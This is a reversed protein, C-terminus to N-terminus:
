CTETFLKASSLMDDNNALVKSSFVITVGSVLLTTFQNESFLTNM